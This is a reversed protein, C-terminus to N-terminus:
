SQFPVHEFFGFFIYYVSFEISQRQIDEIKTHSWAFVFIAIVSSFIFLDESETQRIVTSTCLYSFYSIKEDNGTIDAINLMAFELSPSSGRM